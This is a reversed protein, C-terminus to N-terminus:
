WESESFKTARSTTLFVSLDELARVAEARLAHYEPNNPQYDPSNPWPVCSVICQVSHLAHRTSTLNSNTAALGKQLMQECGISSAVTVNMVHTLLLANRYSLASQGYNRVDLGLDLESAERMLAGLGYRRIKRAIHQVTAPHHRLIWALDMSALRTWPLSLDSRVHRNRPGSALYYYAVQPAHVLPHQSWPTDAGNAQDM